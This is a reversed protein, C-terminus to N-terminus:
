TKWIRMLLLWHQVNWFISGLCVGLGITWENLRCWWYYGIIANDYILDWVCCLLSWIRSKSIYHFWIPLEVVTAVVFL